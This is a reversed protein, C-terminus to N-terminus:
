HIHKGMLRNKLAHYGRLGLDPSYTPQLWRFIPSSEDLVQVVQKRSGHWRDTVKQFFELCHASKMTKSNTLAEHYRTSRINM